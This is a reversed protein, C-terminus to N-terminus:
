HRIADFKGQALRRLDDESLRQDRVLTAFVGASPRTGRM